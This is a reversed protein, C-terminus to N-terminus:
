GTNIIFTICSNRNGTSGINKDDSFLVPGLNAINLLYQVEVREELHNKM